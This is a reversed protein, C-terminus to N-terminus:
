SVPINKFYDEYNKGLTAKAISRLVKVAVNLATHLGSELSKEKYKKYSVIRNVVTIIRTLDTTNLDKTSIGKIEKIKEEDIKILKGLREFHEKVIKKSPLLQLGLGEANEVPISISVQSDEFEIDYYDKDQGDMRIKSNKVITGAGHNPYIIQTDKKFM